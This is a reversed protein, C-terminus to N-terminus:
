QSFFVCGLFYISRACINRSSNYERNSPKWFELISAKLRNLRKVPKRRCARAHWLCLTILHRYKPSHLTSIVGICLESSPIIFDLSLFSCVCQTYAQTHLKSSIIVVSYLAVLFTLFLLQLLCLCLVVHSGFILCVCLCSDCRLTHTYKFALACKYVDINQRETKAM